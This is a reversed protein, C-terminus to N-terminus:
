HRGWRPRVLGANHCGKLTCFQIADQKRPNREAEGGAVKHAVTPPSQPSPVTEPPEAGSCGRSGQAGGNAAFQRNTGGPFRGCFM